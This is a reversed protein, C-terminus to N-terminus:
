LLYGCILYMCVYMCVYMFVRYVELDTVLGIRGMIADMHPTVPQMKSGLLLLPTPRAPLMCAMIDKRGCRSVVSDELTKCHRKIDEPMQARDLRWCKQHTILHRAGTGGAVIWASCETSRIYTHILHKVCPRRCPGVLTISCVDAMYKASSCQWWLCASLCAPLCSM